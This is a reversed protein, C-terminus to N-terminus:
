EKRRVMYREADPLATFGFDAYFEHADGTALIWRDMGTFAPCELVTEVLWRGLGRGQHSPLVFLDSLWAFRVTDTVVRAFGIQSGDVTYLGFTVANDVSREFAERDFRQGWYSHSIFNWLMDRDLRSADMSIVFGNRRWEWATM